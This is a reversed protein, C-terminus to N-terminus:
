EVVDIYIPDPAITIREENKTRMTFDVNVEVVYRGPRNPSFERKAILPDDATFVGIRKVEAWLYSNTDEVNRIDLRPLGGNDSIPADVGSINTLTASVTMSEGVKLTTKPVDITLEFDDNSWTDKSPKCSCFCMMILCVTLICSVWRKYIRM